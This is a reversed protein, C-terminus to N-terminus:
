FGAWFARKEVVEVANDLDDVLEDATVLIFGM